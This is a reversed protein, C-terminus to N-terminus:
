LRTYNFKDRSFFIYIEAILLPIIFFGWMFFVDLPRLYDEEKKTNINYGFIGAIMYFIRYIWSGMSLAYTRLAFNRHCIYNKNYAYHWAIIGYLLFIIGYTFFAINM